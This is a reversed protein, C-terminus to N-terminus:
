RTSLATREMWVARPRGALDDIIKVQAVWACVRLQEALVAAQAEACEVCAMGGPALVRPLDALLRRHVDMGDEGGDLSLWPEGGDRSGVRARLEPHPVYPPNSVICDFSGALATALDAQMLRVRPSLDPYRARNAQAVRMAAPSLEVATVTCSPVAYAIGLAINASGACLDLVALPTSARSARDQLHRIVPQLWAETEPRPIFVSADVQLTLGGFSVSGLVYHLPEGRLRRSLRQEVVVAVDAPLAGDHLYLGTRSVGLADALLWEAEASASTVGASALATEVEQVARRISSRTM